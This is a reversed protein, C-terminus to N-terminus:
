EEDPCDRWEDASDAWNQLFTDMDDEDYRAKVLAMLMGREDPDGEAGLFLVFDDELDEDFDGTSVSDLVEWMEEWSDWYRGNNKTLPIYFGVMDSHSIGIDAFREITEIKDVNDVDGDEDLDAHPVAILLIRGEYDDINEIFGDEVFANMFYYVINGLTSGDQPNIEEAATVVNMDQLDRVVNILRPWVQGPVLEGTEVGECFELPSEAEPDLPIPTVAVPTPENDQAFSPSAGLLLGGGILLMAGVLLGLTKVVNM